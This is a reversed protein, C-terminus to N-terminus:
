LGSGGRVWFSFNDQSCSVNEMFSDCCKLQRVHHLYHWPGPSSQQKLNKDQQLQSFWSNWERASFGSLSRGLVPNRGKDSPDQPLGPLGGRIPFTQHQTVFATGGLGGTGRDGAGMSPGDTSAGWAWSSSFRWIVNFTDPGPADESAIQARWCTSRTSEWHYLGQEMTDVQSQSQGCVTSSVGIVLVTKVTSLFFFSFYM